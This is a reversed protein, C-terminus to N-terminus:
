STFYPKQVTVKTSWNKKIKIIPKCFFDNRQFKAIDPQMSFFPSAHFNQVPEKKAETPFRAFADALTNQKVPRYFVKFNVSKTEFIWRALLGRLNELKRCTAM